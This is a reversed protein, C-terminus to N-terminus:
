RERAGPALKSTVGVLMPTPDTKQIVKRTTSAAPPCMTSLTFPESRLPPRGSPRAATASRPAVVASAPQGPGKGPPLAPAGVADADEEEDAADVAEDDLEVADEEEEVDEDPVPPAPPAPPMPPAPPSSDDDLLLLVDVDDLLLLPLVLVLLVDVLLVLLLEVDALLLVPLEDVLEVLELLV